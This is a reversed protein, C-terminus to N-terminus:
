QMRSPIEAKRLLDAIHSSMGVNGYVVVGQKKKKAETIIERLKGLGDTVYYDIWDEAEGPCIVRGFSVTAGKHLQLLWVKNGDYAWEFRVPGLVDSLRNNLEAVENLVDEPLDSPTIAGLMFEDGLGQVGEVITQGDSGTILAGSFRALVGEQVICSALHTGQPDDEEMLVYPDMWRRLTTFRGPEQVAPCTRTWKTESGTPLGFTFLSLRPNRPFVTCRPVDCGLLHGVLLGYAKDGMLKSFPNPWSFFPSIPVETVKEEEWIITQKKRWGRPKPHISFEVRWGEDYSAIDPEFGYVTKLMSIAFDRPLAPVPYEADKEVFRPVTGSAFELCGGQLVGSVGGDNIDVTENVIVYFGARTLRVVLEIVDSASGLGYHFANGQPQDPKFSRVNVTGDPAAALLANVAEATTAFATNPEYGYVRSFRLKGQPSFSIFQAVNASEALKDLIADKYM